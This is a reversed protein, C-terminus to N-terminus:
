EADLAEMRMKLLFLSVQSGLDEIHFVEFIIDLIMQLHEETLIEGESIFEVWDQVIM